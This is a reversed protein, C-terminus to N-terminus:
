YHHRRWRRGMEVAANLLAVSFLIAANHMAIDRNDDRLAAMLFIIAYAAVITSAFSVICAVADAVPTSREWEHYGPAHRIRLDM